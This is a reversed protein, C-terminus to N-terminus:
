SICRHCITLEGKDDELQGRRRRADKDNWPTRNCREDTERGVGAAPFSPQGLNSKVVNALGMAGTTNVALAAERRVSEARSNLM